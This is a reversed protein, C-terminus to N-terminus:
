ALLILRAVLQPLWPFNLQQKLKGRNKPRRTWAALRVKAAIAEFSAPSVYNPYSHFRGTSYLGEICEFIALSAESPTRFAAEELLQLRTRLAARWLGTKDVHYPM